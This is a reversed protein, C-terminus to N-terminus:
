KGCYPCYKLKDMNEPIRWYPNDVDHYQPVITRYDYKTWECTDTSKTQKDVREADSIVKWIRNFKDAHVADYDAQNPRSNDISNSVEYHEEERIIDKIKELTDLAKIAMICATEKDNINSWTAGSGITELVCIAYKVNM